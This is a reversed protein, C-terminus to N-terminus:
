KKPDRFDTRLSDIVAKSPEDRLLAVGGAFAGLKASYAKVDTRVVFVKYGAAIARRLPFVKRAEGGLGPPMVLAAEARAQAAEPTAFHEEDIWIRYFNKAGLNSPFTSKLAVSWRALTGHTETDWKMLPAKAVPKQVKFGVAAMPAVLSDLGLPERKPAAWASELGALFGLGLALWYIMRM